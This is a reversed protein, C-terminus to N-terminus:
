PAEGLDQSGQPVAGIQYCAIQYCTNHFVSIEAKEPAPEMVEMMTQPSAAWDAV